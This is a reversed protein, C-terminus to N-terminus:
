SGKPKVILMISVSRDRFHVPRDDQDYISVSISSRAGDHCKMWAFNQPQFTILSGVTSPRPFSTLINGSVDYENKVLDCRVVYSSSPHIEPTINSLTTTSTTSSTAPYTATSLGLVKGFEANDIILRPVRSTTPLGTGGSSYLGTTPRTYGVPLTTPTASHDIQAAYYTQNAVLQIYFVDDGNANILYAGANKLATQINRNIDTYQYAGDALNISITSTTAATPVEIKFSTNAFAQSDINYQSNYLNISQIALEVDRFNVSSGVFNYRFTNNLGNEVVESSDLKIFSSM